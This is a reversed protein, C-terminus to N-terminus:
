FPFNYKICLIIEYLDKPSLTCIKGKLQSKDVTTIQECLVTNADASFKDYDSKYLMYHTLLEPKVKSTIPVVQITNSHACCKANSVVVCPRTGSQVSGNCDGFSCIYVDGPITFKQTM